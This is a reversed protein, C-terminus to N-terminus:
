RRRFHRPRPGRPPGRGGGGGRLRDPGRGGVLLDGGGKGMITDPGNGGALCPASSSAGIVTTAANEGGNADCSAASVASPAIALSSLALAIGTAAITVRARFRGGVSYTM